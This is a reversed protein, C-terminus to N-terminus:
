YMKGYQFILGDIAKSAESKTLEEMSKAFGREILSVGHYRLLAELYKKQKLTIPEQKKVKYFLPAPKFIEEWGEKRRETESERCENKMAQYLAATARTDSLARHAQNNHIGYYKTVTDLDKHPLEPHLQKALFLTDVGSLDEKTWGTFKEGKEMERLFGTKLFSYDFRINHGVLVPTEGMFADLRKLVMGVPDAGKVMEDTIGTIESIKAPIPVGPDVLSSFEEGDSLRIAAIETIKHIEPSLGTTEIDLVIENKM